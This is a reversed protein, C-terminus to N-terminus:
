SLGLAKLVFSREDMVGPATEGCGRRKPEDLFYRLSAIPKGDRRDTVDVDFQMLRSDSTQEGVPVSRLTVLADATLEPIAHASGERPSRRYQMKKDPAGEYRCCRTETFPIQTPLPALGTGGGLSGVSGNLGITFHNYRPASEGKAWDYAISNIPRDPISVFRVAASKCAAQFESTNPRLTEYAAHVGLGALSALYSSPLTMAAVLM